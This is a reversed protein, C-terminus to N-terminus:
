PKNHGKAANRLLLTAGTAFLVTGIVALWPWFTYIQPPATIPDDPLGIMIALGDWRDNLEAQSFERLALYEIMVVRDDAIEKVFAFHTNDDLVLITQRPDRSIYDLSARIVQPQLGLDRAADIMGQISTGDWPTTGAVQKIRKLSVDVGITRAALWLSYPGCMMEAGATTSDPTGAFSPLPIFLLLLSVIFYIKAIMRNCLSGCRRKIRDNDKRVFKSEERSRIEPIVWM